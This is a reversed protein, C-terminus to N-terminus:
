NTEDNLKEFATMARARLNQRIKEDLQNMETFSNAFTEPDLCVLAYFHDGVADQRVPISGNITISTVSKSVNLALEENYSESDHEGEEIYKQILSKTTIQLQRGLQQRAHNQSMDMAMSINGKIKYVGAACGPKPNVVWAPVSTGQVDVPEQNVKKASCAGILLSLASVCFLRKM